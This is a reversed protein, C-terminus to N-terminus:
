LYKIPIGDREIIKKNYNQLIKETKLMKNYEMRPYNKPGEIEMVKFVYWNQDTKRQMRVVVGFGGCSIIIIDGEYYYHKSLIEDKYIM